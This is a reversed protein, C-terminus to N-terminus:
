AEPERESEFFINGKNKKFVELRKSRAVKNEEGTQAEGIRLSPGSVHGEALTSALRFRTGLVTVM